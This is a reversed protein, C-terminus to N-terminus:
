SMRLLRENINGKMGGEIDMWVPFGASKLGSFVQKVLGQNDWQYSLMVHKAM